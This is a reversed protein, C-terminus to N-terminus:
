FSAFGTTQIPQVMTLLSFNLKMAKINQHVVKLQDLFQTISPVLMYFHLALGFIFYIHIVDSCSHLTCRSYSFIVVVISVLRNIPFLETHFVHESLLLLFPSSSCQLQFFNNFHHINPSILSSYRQITDYDM